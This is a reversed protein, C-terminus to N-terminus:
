KKIFVPQCFALEGNSAFVKARVYLEDGRFPYSPTLSYEEKLVVGNRGIFRTTYATDRLPKITLAYGKETVQVETLEVGTSAYFDGQDLATCVADPTLENVRVMVWGKGPYSLDPLFDGLYDHTDDSAIGYLVMGKTLLADWLEETGPRGGAAFNNSDRNVNLLEFLRLGRLDKMDDATISWRWHPHNVHPVAGAARAADVANQLTEAVTKGVVAEAVPRKPNLANVHVRLKDMSRTIELGSILIFDDNKDSDLYTVDTVLDHDSIVLFQYNHDLYWRMVRRPMENGDSNRTHTHTNGKVWRAAPALCVASFVLLVALSAKKM